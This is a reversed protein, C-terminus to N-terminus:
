RSAAVRRVEARLLADASEGRERAAAVLALLRTGLDDGTLDPVRGARAMRSLVKDAILLSSLSIPIGALLDDRDRAPKEDAKIREWSAEVEAPTTADGDGFVHPHRRLLKAVLEAAVDDIDWPDDADDAAIRAHFLVQLLVDGLEERLHARDGSEIAEVTEHAEELLYKTLSDHTQDADWPCGGPSRLVDMVTVADLLRAGPQDWSGVLVEVTPPEDAATLQGALADTLGPDADPSTLWVVDCSAARDALARALAAPPLDLTELAIGATAVAQPLPDDGHRALVTGAAELARWADRSLLGAAVRPSAVLLTLDGM